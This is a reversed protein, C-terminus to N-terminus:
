CAFFQNLLHYRHELAKNKFRTLYFEAKKFDLLKSLDPNLRLAEIAHTNNISSNLYLFDLLAKELEAILVPRKDPRQIITYGFYLRPMIRKYSFTGRPTNYEITKLTTVASIDFAQEPIIHYFSLASELSVYSPSRLFNSIQFLMKENVLMDNFIYYGKILKTIYDKEQWEYLRRSDFDPYIKLIDKISFVEFPRIAKRFKLYSIKNRM